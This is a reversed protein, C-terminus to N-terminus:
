EIARSVARSREGTELFGLLETQHLAVKDVTRISAAQSWVISPLWWPKGWFHLYQSPRAVLNASRLFEHPPTVLRRSAQVQFRPTRYKDFNFTFSDVWHDTWRELEIMRGAVPRDTQRLSIDVLCFGAQELAPVLRDRVLSILIKTPAPCLRQWKEFRAKHNSKM